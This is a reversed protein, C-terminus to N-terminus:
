RDENPSGTKKYGRIDTRSTEDGGKVRQQGRFNLGVTGCYLVVFVILSM